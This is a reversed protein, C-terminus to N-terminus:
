SHRWWLFDVRLAQLGWLLLGELGAATQLTGQAYSLAGDVIRQILWVQLGTFTAPVFFCIVSALANGPVYRFVTKLCFICNRLIRM